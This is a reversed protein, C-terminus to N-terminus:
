VQPWELLAAATRPELGQQVHVRASRFTTRVQEKRGGNNSIKGPLGFRVNAASPVLEQKHQVFM